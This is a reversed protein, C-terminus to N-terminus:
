QPGIRRLWRGRGEIPGHDPDYVGFGLIEGKSFLVATRFPDFSYWRSLEDASRWIHTAPGLSSELVSLTAYRNIGMSDPPKGYYLVATVKGDVFRVRVQNGFDGRYFYVWEYTKGPISDSEIKNLPEGKQFLVDAETTGLSVGWLGSLVPPGQEESDSIYIALGTALGAVLLVAVPWLFIRRWNWRDKTAIFLAVVSLVLSSLFISTGLEM